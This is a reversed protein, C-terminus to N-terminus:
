LPTKVSLVLRLMIGKLADIRILTNIKTIQRLQFNKIM